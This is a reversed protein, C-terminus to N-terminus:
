GGTNPCRSNSVSRRWTRSIKPGLFCDRCYFRPNEVDMQDVSTTDPDRGTARVLSAVVQSDLQWRELCRRREFYPDGTSDSMHHLFSGDIWVLCAKDPKYHLGCRFVSTARLLMAGKPDEALSNPVDGTVQKRITLSQSSRWADVFDMFNSKLDLFDKKTIVVDPDQHIINSALSWHLFDEPFPAFHHRELGSVACLEPYISRALEKREAQVNKAKM